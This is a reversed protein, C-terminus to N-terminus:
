DARAPLPVTVTTNTPQENLRMANVTVVLSSLSMGIAALYPPVWGMAALPLALGNYALAWTLNQRIVHRVKRAYSLTAPLLNLDANLLISDAQAKALDTASGMAVSVDSASLVPVDNIGDGVMLVVEGRAQCAEVYALKEEPKVGARYEPIQLENAVQAVSGPQDGSLLTVSIGQEIFAAVAAKASVRLRDRLIVHALVEGSTANALFIVQEGAAVEPVQAIPVGIYEAKGFQYCCDNITGTVGAGVYQVIQRAFCQGQWPRFAWGIPHNSGAELVAIVAVARDRLSQDTSLSAFHQEGAASFVVSQLQPRGETLTGTKDFIVHDIRNLAELVHGRTILLGQRRLRNLAATLAVPTALSLACPCTVVLVSLVVWVAKESDIQWWVFGVVLSVLLVAAVFYGAVHDAMAVQLPKYQRGNEVLREIANLRTGRGVATVCVILRHGLNMSGAVVQDGPKKSIATSEGTLLSEDVTTIGAVIEGDCPINDGSAVEVWDGPSLERVAVTECEAHASVTSASQAGSQREDMDPSPKVRNVALPILQSLSENALGNRHRIRMEMFRGLLLFFTFMSVSDFYVEGGGKLTSWASAAYAGLIAISVPVDMTLHKHVLSRWAARYFPQASFLVVPTAILLSVWRLLVEWEDGAGAYLATAAMGVQMMGFGAVALRMLALRSERQRVAQQQNQTAPLPQYGVESIAAFIASLSVRDAQWVIRARHTSANVRVETVGDLYGVHKELLWVCAACSIGEILLHSERQGDPLTETFEGQVSPTDYVNFQTTQNAPKLNSQTRYQYYHSLGGADIAQAVAQCGPCCFLQMQGQVLAQFPEGSPVPLGCHFCSNPMM